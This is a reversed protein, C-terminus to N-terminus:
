YNILNELEEVKELHVKKALEYFSKSVYKEKLEERSLVVKDKNIKIWGKPQLKNALYLYSYMPTDIDKALEEAMEEIKQKDM